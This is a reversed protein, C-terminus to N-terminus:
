AGEKWLLRQRIRSVDRQSHVVLAACLARTQPDPIEDAVINAQAKLETAATILRQIVSPLRNSQGVAAADALTADGVGAAQLMQWGLVLRSAALRKDESNLVCELAARLETADSWVPDGGGSPVRWQMDRAQKRQRCQRDPQPQCDVFARDKITQQTM